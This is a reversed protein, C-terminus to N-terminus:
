TLSPLTAMRAAGGWQQFLDTAAKDIKALPQAKRNGTGPFVLYFIDKKSTGGNRPNEKIGLRRALEISGEGIKDTPGLDAIIAPSAKGNARNVVYAYDGLMARGKEINPVVIFPVANSDVYRAPDEELQGSYALATTSVYYGKWPGTKQVVPVGNKAVIGWWKWKSHPANPQGKPPQGANRIHDTGTNAPHYANPAGDANIAM